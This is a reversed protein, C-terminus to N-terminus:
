ATYEKSLFVVVLKPGTLDELRTPSLYMRLYSVIIYQSLHKALPVLVLIPVCNIKSLTLTTMTKIINRLIKNQNYESNSSVGYLIKM